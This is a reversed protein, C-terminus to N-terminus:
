NGVGTRRELRDIKQEILDLRDSIKYVKDTTNKMDIKLDRLIGKLKTRGSSSINISPEFSDTEPSESSVNSASSAFSGLFGLPGANTTTLDVVKEEKSAEVANRKRILGRRQMDGLDIVTDNKRFRKFFNGVAM